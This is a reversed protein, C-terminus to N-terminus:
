PNVEHGQPSEPSYGTLKTTIQGNVHVNPHKRVEGCIEDYFDHCEEVTEFCQTVHVTMKYM